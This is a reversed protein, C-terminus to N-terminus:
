MLCSYFTPISLRTIIWTGKCREHAELNGPEALGLFAENM